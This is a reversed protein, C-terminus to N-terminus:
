QFLSFSDIEQGDVTIFTFNIESNSVTVLMAGHTDRFRVQSGSKIFLFRYRSPHGGLGNVFIPLDDIILREYLHDHGAMLASAGWEEFPWQMWDVNGHRGSSYPSHHMYVIKWPADSATLVEELWQAQLSGASVGAPERSDSDLAFFHVPGRRFDYYRENGPLTFYDLYPDLTGSNWDHNGPSPFFRNETAGSGFDGNYPYIFSAYYQGINQDITSSLGSPYNNDGTTIIFDPEWSHVLEAVAEEDQGARGYDGIVAYRIKREATPSPVLTVNETPPIDPTESIETAPPTLTSPNPPRTTSSEVATATPLQIPTLNAEQTPEDIRCAVLILAMVVISVMSSGFNRKHSAKPKGTVHLDASKILKKTTFQKTEVIKLDGIM